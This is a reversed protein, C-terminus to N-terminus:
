SSSSHASSISVSFLSLLSLSCRLRICDTSLRSRLRGETPLSISVSLFLFLLYFLCIWLVVLYPAAFGIAIPRYSAGFDGNLRFRFRCLELFLVLFFSSLSSLCIASFGFANLLFRFGTGSHLPFRFCFQGLFLFPCASFVFICLFEAGFSGNLRVRFLYLRMFLFLLFFSLYLCSLSLWWCYRKCVHVPSLCQSLSISPCSLCLKSKDRFIGAVLGSSQLQAVRYLFFSKCRSKGLSQKV